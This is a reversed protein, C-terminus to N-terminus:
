KIVVAGTAQMKAVTDQPVKWHQDFRGGAVINELSGKFLLYDGFQSLTGAPPAPM